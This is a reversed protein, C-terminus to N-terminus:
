SFMFLVTATIVLLLGAATRLSIKEKYILAGILASFLICGGNVVPFTVSAGLGDPGTGIAIFYNGTGNFLGYCVALGASLVIRKLKKDANLKKDAAPQDAAAVLESQESGIQRRGRQKVAKLAAWVCGTIVATSIGYWCMFIDSDTVAKGDIVAYYATLEPSNQHVTFLVGILGNLVFVAAYYAFAKKSGNRKGGVPLGSCLVAALMLVVAVGKLIGVPENYFIIGTLCPLAMSGSMMFVSYVSTDGVALVKIGCYVCLLTVVAVGATMALTFLSFGFVVKQHTLCAKVFFFAAIVCYALFSLSLTSFIGDDNIRQYAKTIIFQLAFLLAAVTLFVYYIM